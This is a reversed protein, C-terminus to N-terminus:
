RTGPRNGTPSSRHLDTALAVHMELDTLVEDGCDRLRREARLDARVGRAQTQQQVTVVDEQRGIAGASAM